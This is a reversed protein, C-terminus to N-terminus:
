TLLHAVFNVYRFVFKDLVHNFHNLELKCDGVITNFYSSGDEEYCASDLVHSDTEFECFDVQLMKTWLLAERLSIAETEKPSWNGIVQRCRVGIFQGHSNRVVCGVGIHGNHACTADVNVKIWEDTSRSWKRDM